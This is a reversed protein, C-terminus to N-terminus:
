IITLFVPVVVHFVVRCQGDGEGRWKRGNEAVEKSRLDAAHFTVRERDLTQLLADGLSWITWSDPDMKQTLTSRFADQIASKRGFTEM